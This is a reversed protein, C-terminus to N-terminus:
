FHWIPLGKDLISSSPLFQKLLGFSHMFLHLAMIFFSYIKFKFNFIKFQYSKIYVSHSGMIYTRVLHEEMHYINAQLHNPLVSIYLWFKTNNIM